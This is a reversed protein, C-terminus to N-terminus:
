VVLTYGKQTGKGKIKVDEVAAKGEDVLQRVLSSAKQTSIEIGAETVAAAIDTATQTEDSLIAVIAEKIPANEAAKKSPKAKRKANAEDLKVLAEAAYEKLEASVEAEAIATLFERKTMKDAM